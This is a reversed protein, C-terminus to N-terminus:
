RASGLQLISYDGAKGVRRGSGLRPLQRRELCAIGAQVALFEASVATM